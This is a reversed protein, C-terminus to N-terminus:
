NDLWRSFVSAATSDVCVSSGIVWIAIAPISIGEDDGDDTRQQSSVAPLATSYRPLTCPPGRCPLRPVILCGSARRATTSMPLTPVQCM